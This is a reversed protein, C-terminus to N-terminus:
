FIGSAHWGQGAALQKKALEIAPTKDYKADGKLHMALLADAGELKQDNLMANFADEGSEYYTEVLSKLFALKKPRDDLIIRKGTQLDGWTTGDDFQVFLVASVVDIVKAGPKAPDMPDSVELPCPLPNEEQHALRRSKFAYDSRSHCPQTQAHEDTMKTIAVYALIDKTSINRIAVYPGVDALDHKLSLSVPAGKATVDQFKQGFALSSAFLLALVAPKM